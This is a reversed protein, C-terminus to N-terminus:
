SKGRKITKFIYPARGCRPCHVTQKYQIYVYQEVPTGCECLLGHRAVTAVMEEKDLRRGKAKTSPKFMGM